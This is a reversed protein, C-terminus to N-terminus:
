ASRWSSLRCCIDDEAIFIMGAFEQSFRCRSFLGVNARTRRRTPCSRMKQLAWTIWLRASGTVGYDPGDPLSQLIGIVISPGYGLRIKWNLRLEASRTYRISYNFEILMLSAYLNSQWIAIRPHHPYLDAWSCALLASAWNSNNLPLRALPFHFVPRLPVDLVSGAHFM